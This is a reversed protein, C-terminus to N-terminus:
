LKFTNEMYKVFKENKLMLNWFEDNLEIDGSYEESLIEGTEPDVITYKNGYKGGSAKTVFGGDLAFDLLGSWKNVGNEHSVYVDFKTKEKVDRSKDITIKFWYGAVGGDKEKDTSRSIFWIDDSMLYAGEGGGPKYQSIFSMTQYGHNIAVLPINKLNLKPTIMRFLSKMAKARTLDAVQKGDLADDIEKKSALNGISDIMIFVHDERTFEELQSVLDHKLEEINTIPVHIVKDLPIGADSFRKIRSGFESDYFLIIGDPYKKLFAAAFLISFGTKFHKSPACLQLIGASIGADIKASLGLNLIPIDTPSTDTGKDFVKSELITATLDVTSNKLIRDKLSTVEKAM